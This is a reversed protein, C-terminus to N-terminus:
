WGYFVSGSLGTLTLYFCHGFVFKWFHSPEYAFVSSYFSLRNVSCNNSLFVGEETGIVSRWACKGGMTDALFSPTSVPCLSREPATGDMTREFKGSFTSLVKALLLPWVTCTM